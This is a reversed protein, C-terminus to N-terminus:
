VHARGIEALEQVTMGDVAAQAPVRVAHIDAQGQLISSVKHTDPSEIEVLMRNILLDTVRLLSDVGAREYATEYAPNRMRAIVQPVGASKAILAAALNDADDETTAVLVDAKHLEADQLVEIDAISGHVAIVGTEAYLQDCRDANAEIMVVDHKNAALKRALEGGVLGAGGIVIYM